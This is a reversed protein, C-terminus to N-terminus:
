QNKCSGWYGLFSLKQDSDVAYGTQVQLLHYMPRYM